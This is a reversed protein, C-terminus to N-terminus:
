EYEEENTNKKLKNQYINMKGKLFDLIKFGYNNELDLWTEKIKPEKLIERPIEKSDKAKVKKKILSLYHKKAEELEGIAIQTDKNKWTIEYRADFDINRFTGREHM